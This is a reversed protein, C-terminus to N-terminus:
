CETKWWESAMRYRRPTLFAFFNAVAVASGSLPSQNLRTRILARSRHPDMPAVDYRASAVDRALPASRAARCRLPRIRIWPGSMTPPHPDDLNRDHLSSPTCFFPRHKRM